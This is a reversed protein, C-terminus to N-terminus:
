SGTCLSRMVATVQGCHKNIHLHAKSIVAGTALLSTLGAGESFSCAHQNCGTCTSVQTVQKMWCSTPSTVLLFVWPMCSCCLAAPLPSVLSLKGPLAIMVTIVAM